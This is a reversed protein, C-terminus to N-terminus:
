PTGVLNALYNDLASITAPSLEGVVYGGGYFNMEATTTGNYGFYIGLSPTSSTSGAGEGTNTGNLVGDVYQYSEGAAYDKCGILRNAGNVGLASSNSGTTSTADTRRGRTQYQDASASIRYGISWRANTSTGANIFVMNKLSADVTLDFGCYGTIAGVSAVSAMGAASPLRLFDDVGDFELWHRVGDTRYIPRRGSQVQIAHGGDPAIAATGNLTWTEGTVSSVFTSGTTYAQPTFAAVVPGNIGNRVEAYHVEGLLAATSGSASGISLDSTGAFISPLVAAVPYGIDDWTGTDADPDYDTSSYFNVVQGSQSWTAKLWLAVGAVLPAAATATIVISTTGDACLLMQPVFTSSSYRMQYSRSTSAYRGILIGAGGPSATPLVALARLDVDGTIRLSAKDPTSYTATAVGPLYGILDGAPNITNLMLAVPDGDATVPVLGAADQFLRQPFPEFTKGQVGGWLLMELYFKSKHKYRRLRSRM